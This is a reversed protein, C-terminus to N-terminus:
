ARHVGQGAACLEADSEPTAVDAVARVKDLSLDGACLSGVLQPLDWAKEGLRTLARATPTSVGFREVAWAEASTAGDDRYVQRRSAEGLNVLIEGDVAAKLRFLGDLHETIEENSRAAAASIVDVM